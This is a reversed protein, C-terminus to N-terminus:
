KKKAMAARQTIRQPWILDDRQQKRREYRAQAKESVRLVKDGNAVGNGVFYKKFIAVSLNSAELTLQKAQEITLQKYM